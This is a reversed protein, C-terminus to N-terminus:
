FARNVAPYSKLRWSVLVPYLKQECVLAITAARNYKQLSKLIWHRSQLSFTASFTFKRNAIKGAWKSQWIYSFGVPTSNRRFMYGLKLLSVLNRRQEVPMKVDYDHLFPVIFSFYLFHSARAFTNNQKNFGCNHNQSERRRRTTPDLTPLRM